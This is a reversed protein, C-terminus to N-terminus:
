KKGSNNDSGDGGWTAHGGAGPASDGPGGLWSGGDGGICGNHSIVCNRITATSGCYIGGGYANGGDTTEGFLDYIYADKGDGARAANGTIICNEIIPHGGEGVYLGGGHVDQEWSGQVENGQIICNRITPSSGYCYIGGGRTGENGGGNTITFGDVISDAGEGGSFKFGRRRGGCDIICSAPGNKSRVVIKKQRLGLNNNSYGTYTGDECVIEDGDVAANIAAQITPYDGSGDARVTITRCYAAQGALCVVAVAALIVFVGRM